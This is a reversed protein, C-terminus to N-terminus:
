SIEENKKKNKKLTAIRVQYQFTMVRDAQLHSRIFQEMEEIHRSISEDSNLKESLKHSVWSFGTSELTCQLGTASRVDAVNVQHSTFDFNSRTQGPLLHGTIEYPKTTEWKELDSLFNLNTTVSMNRLYDSRHFSNPSPRTLIRM